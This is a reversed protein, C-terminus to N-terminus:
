LIFPLARVVRESSAMAAIISDVVSLHYATLKRAQLLMREGPSIWALPWAKALTQSEGM